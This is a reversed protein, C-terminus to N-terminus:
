GTGTYRCPVLETVCDRRVSASGPDGSDACQCADREHNADDTFTVEVKLTAGADDTVLVYTSDTAGAIDTEASGVVRIWQYRYSVNILGDEDTIGSTVATLTEGVEATGTIMPAGRTVTVTASDSHTDTGTDVSSTHGRGTVTLTFTLETDVPLAPVTVEPTVSANDDFIVEVGSPPGTLAWRYTVNTGWPGGNSGSGNLTVMGGAASVTGNDSLALAVPAFPEGSTNELRLDTLATLLEFVGAPLTPLGNSGLYLDTLLTLNGFVGAPLTVLHNGTLDLLNLADLGAFIQAPLTTLGNSGLYLDTLATLDDFVGTPLETLRNGSLNLNLLETLGAFDGEALTSINRTALDLTGTVAALDADTVDACNSVRSIKDVIAVHVAHTRACLGPAVDITGSAPYAASTLEETSNGGDTFSVEVKVQGGIDTTALTYSPSNTGIDTPNSVGDSDVRVWQYTFVTGALGDVDMIGSVDATLTWGAWATGSITPAGTAEDQVATVNVTMTYPSESKDTGDSVKFTFSAYGTGNGDAAPTFVLKGIDAAAVVKGLRVRAGDFQLEGKRPRTVVTVAALNAGPDPDFFNFDVAAFTYAMDENTEVSSDSATPITNLARATATDTGADIGDGSEGGRATVTLTFTLVTAPPLAPVTVEPMVSAADDFTVTVEGVPGTLEWHYIVNTGWPGGDSGRGDLILTGGTAPVTDDVLVADATPAFPAGPNGALRLVNLATLPEFVAAPLANLANDHLDLDTLADLGAFVSVPLGTLGNGSLDLETLADLGAFDGAALVTINRGSLVLGGTIAGLHANTVFACNGVGSIKDLIAAYVAPTRGCIGGDAVAITGSAPFVASTLTESNDADDTFSVRVRITKGVDATVVLYEDDTADTIDTENTGDVRIWQYLYGVNGLGDADMIDGTDATLVQDVRAMGRISPLGRAATNPARPTGTHVASPTGDPLHTSTAIVRVSYQEGAALGTIISTTTSGGSEARERGDGPADDFTQSGSRWQVKYGDAGIVPDWTVTLQEHQGVATVQVNTVQELLPLGPTATAAAEPGFGAGNEARVEFTTQVAGQFGTVTHSVTDRDSDTVDQWTGSGDAAVIRYQYGTISDYGDAGDPRDWNLTVQGPGPTASLGTVVRAVGAIKHGTQVGSSAHDLDAATGQTSITGSAAGSSGLSLRNSRIRIGDEDTAGFPVTWAFVLKNTGSGSGYDFTTAVEAGGGVHVLLFPAGTVVVRESFTFTVEIVEGGGYTDHRFAPTSTVALDEITAASGGLIVQGSAAALADHTLVAQLSTATAAITGGNLGLADAPVSLIAGAADADTVTHTFMLRSSGNGAGYDALVATSGIALSLQPTGSVTVPESFGVAIRVEDGSLYGNGETSAFALAAIIPPSSTVTATAASTLTEFHDAADTFTVRVKITMGRDDVTVVYTSDTAGPIDAEHSGNVRIWQYRYSVNGLGDADTIGSTGATLLHRDQTTGSITPAGGATTNVTDPTDNRVTRENLAIAANGWLDQVPNAGPTYDLTVVDGVAVPDALTLTVTAADRAVTVRSVAHPTPVSDSGTAIAAFDGPTPTSYLDLPDSDADNAGVRYTLVLNIRNVTAGDANGLLVPPLTDVWSPLTFDGHRVNVTRREADALTAGNLDLGSAARFAATGLTVNGQISISALESFGADPVEWAFVLANSGSGGAYEASQVGSAFSLWLRPVGGTTNLTVAESFTAAFEVTETPGYTSRLWSVAPSSTVTIADVWRTNLHGIITTGVVTPDTLTANVQTGANRISGGNLELGDALLSMDASDHEGTVEYAFVLRTSSSEAAAYPVYLYEKVSGSEALAIKVRPEGTVDVDKDFEVQIKLTSGPVYTFAPPLDILTQGTVKAPNVVTTTAASTLEEPNGNDDSFSVRVKLTKGLDADVPTYTAGYADPIDTADGGDVRIWQYTYIVKVLGDDDAIGSIDVQLQEGVSAAGIITPTGTAQSDSVTKRLVTVMYTETTSADAATVTVAIMNNGVLLAPVTIGDSFDNDTIATGALTVASVSAGDDSTTVALTVQEVAHLVDVRYAFTGSVFSPVLSLESAGHNVTLGSLTADTSTPVVPATADSILSTDTGADDSFSVRVKITKGEDAATLIYDVADADAIPTETVGDVRIWQYSYNPRSLGDVDHIDATEATLTAGVQVTGSITPAGTAPDDVATVNVTVTYSSTSVHAGDSVKFTFSAYPSGNADAAPTFVLKGIESAAVVHDAVVAAGDHALTGAAPLTVVTVSALDDDTDADSFGFDAEIFAHTADENITISKDSGRPVTNVTVTADDTGPDIGGSAVPASVTLTFTMETGASLAPIEVQPTVSTADDFSVTVGSTPATLVWQYTVNTGWAGGSASGDLAVTEGESSVKGDPGADAVPAFDQKNGALNLYSLKTLPEFIGAPLTAPKLKNGSLNLLGLEALEDFQGPHLTKLKNNNLYLTDLSTLQDFVGEPLTDLENSGLQLTTLSTLQHFVGAPLMTLANGNLYLQELGTLQDFVGAPLTSLANNNLYLLDIGTLGGFDGAALETISQSDVYFRGSILALHRNTVDACDGVSSIAAVIADRVAPTRECVATFVAITGSAPYVTSTLPGENNGAADTFSVEVKVKAGADAAVLTYTSSNTGINTDNDSADVRVWQFDYGTPFPGTPLGDTDDITGITATLTRDGEAPGTIAPQGTAPSNATTHDIVYSNDNADTPTTNSLANGATDAIDQGGAFSLTVTGDLDALNGGSATVDYQSSSGSVAAFTLTATTGGVAFDTEDVNRVNEDFTIRWTLVDAKTPSTPPELRTVSTVRPAKTDAATVDITMTYVSTSDDTGDNVKFEFTTFGAGSEGAPPSYTLLGADFQAATVTEPLATEAIATGSLNLAGEGAGPLSTIKVSVLIDGSNTDSFGFDEADFAYDMDQTATVSGHAATPATNDALSGKLSIRLSSNNTIWNGSNRRHFEDGISWGHTTIQDEADSSTTGLSIDRGVAKVSYTTATTLTMTGTFALTNPAFNAPRQFRTCDTTPAGSDTTTCIDIDFEDNTIDPSVIKVSSLTYGASHTGTTFSQARNRDWQNTNGVAQGTNSIFVADSVPATYTSTAQAAATNGNGSKVRPAVADVKHRASVRKAQHELHADRGDASRITGSNLKLQDAAVSVGQPAEDDAQVVYTFVLTTSGSGREYVATRPEFGSLSGMRITLTPTGGITGVYVTEDFVVSTEITEGLGYTNTAATPTSTFRIGGLDLPLITPPANVKHGVQDALAPLLNLVANANTGQKTISAGAPLALAHHLVSVGNTDEDGDVVTYSFVLDSSGSGSEYAAVRSDDGIRLALTPTGTVAVAESFTVTAQIDDGTHYTGTSTLQVENATVHSEIDGSQQELLAPPVTLAGLLGTLCILRILRTLGSRDRALAAPAAGPGRGSWAAITFGM